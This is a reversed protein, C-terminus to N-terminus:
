FFQRFRPREKKNSYLWSPLLSRCICEVAYIYLVGIWLLAGLARFAFLLVLWIVRGVFCACRVSRLALPRLVPLCSFGSPFASRVAAMEVVKSDLSFDTDQLCASVELLREACQNLRNVSANNTRSNKRPKFKALLEIVGRGYVLMIRSTWLLLHMCGNKLRPIVQSTNCSTGHQFREGHM